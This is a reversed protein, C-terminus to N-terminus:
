DTLRIEMYRVGDLPNEYCAETEQFGMSKYLAIAAELHGLTELCMHSYGAVKAEKLCLNALERGLGRGRWGERVYLRKMESRGNESSRVAACAVIKETRDDRVLYLRGLPPAYYGPLSELEEEFGQFCLDVGLWDQYERFLERIVDLDEPTGAPYITLGETM